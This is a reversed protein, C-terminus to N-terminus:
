YNGKSQIKKIERLHEELIPLTQAAFTKLTSNDGYKSYDRFLSVNKKHADTQISVYEKNFEDASANELKDMLKQHKDDLKGTPTIGLGSTELASNMSNGIKSHDDVMHQAFHKIEKNQSKDLAIRGSEIEFESAVSAKRVFDESSINALAPQAEILLGSELITIAMLIFVNRMKM